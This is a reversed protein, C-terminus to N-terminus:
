GDNDKEDKTWIHKKKFIVDNQLVYYMKIIFNFVFTWLIHHM